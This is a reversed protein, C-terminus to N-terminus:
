SRYDANIKVYELSLDCTYVECAASGAKLDINVAFKKRKLVETARKEANAGLGLLRRLPWGAGYACALMVALYPLATAHSLCARALAGYSIQIPPGLRRPHIVALALSLVVGVAFGLLHAWIDTREGGVGLMAILGLGAGLPALLRSGRAGRRRRRSLAPGCLLGLAGFVATSAGVASHFSPRVLANIGNGGIGALLVAALGVGNGLTGCVANVLLAGMIANAAVHRLDAHLTLATALRWPEGALIREAHASGVQFWTNDLARHGTM